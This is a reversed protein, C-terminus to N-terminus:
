REPYGTDPKWLEIVNSIFTHIYGCRECVLGTASENLWGLNFSELGTTNLKIERDLFLTGQCVLCNFPRRASGLTVLSPKRSM